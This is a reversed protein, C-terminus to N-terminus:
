YNKKTLLINQRYVLMVPIHDSLNYDFTISEVKNFLTNAWIHDILSSNKINEQNIRTVLNNCLNFGNAFMVNLYNISNNSKKLIDINMDGALIFNKTNRNALLEDVHDIFLNCNSDPIRYLGLILYNTQNIKVNVAIQEMYVNTFSLSQNKFSDYGNLVYVTVGGGKKDHRVVHHSKYNSIEFDNVTDPTIWSETCIIVVPLSKLNSLFVLLEDFCSQLSRMNWNLLFNNKKSNLTEISCIESKHYRINQSSFENSLAKKFETM